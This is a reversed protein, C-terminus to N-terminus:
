SSAETLRAYEAAIARSYHAPTWGREYARDVNDLAVALVSVDLVSREHAVRVSHGCHPCRVVGYPSVADGSMGM